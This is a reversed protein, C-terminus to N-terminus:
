FKCKKGVPCTRCGLTNPYMYGAAVQQTLGNLMEETGNSFGSTPYITKINLTPLSTEALSINDVRWIEAGTKAIALVGSRIVLDKIPDDIHHFFVLHVGKSSAAVIPIMGSVEHKDLLSMSYKFNISLQHSDFGLFDQYLLDLLIYARKNQDRAEKDDLEKDKWFTKQWKTLLTKWSPKHGTEFEKVHLYLVTEEIATKVPDLNTVLGGIQKFLYPCYAYNVIKQIPIQM